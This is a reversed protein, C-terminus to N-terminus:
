QRWIWRALLIGGVILVVVTIIALIELLSLAPM